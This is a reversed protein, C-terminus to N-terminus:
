NKSIYPIHPYERPNRKAPVEFSLPNTSLLLKQRNRHSCRRFSWLYPSNATETAMDEYVTLKLFVTPMLPVNRCCV